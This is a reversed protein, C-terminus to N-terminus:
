AKTIAIIEEDITIEIIDSNHLELTTRALPNLELHSSLEIVKTEIGEERFYDLIREDDVADLVIKISDCELSYIVDKGFNQKCSKYLSPLEIKHNKVEAFCHIMPTIGKHYEESDLEGTAWLERILDYDDTMEQFDCRLKAEEFDERLMREVKAYKM